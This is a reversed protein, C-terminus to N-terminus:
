QLSEFFAFQPAHGVMEEYHSDDTATATELWKHLTELVEEANSISAYSSSSPRAGRQPELVALIKGRNAKIGLSTLTEEWALATRHLAAISGDAESEFLAETTVVAFSGEDAFGAETLKAVLKDRDRRHM